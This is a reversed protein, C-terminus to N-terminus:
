TTASLVVLGGVCGLALAFMGSRLLPRDLLYCALHAVRFVVWGLGLLGALAEDTGVSWAILAVPAFVVAAEFANQEAAWARGPLGELRANQARPLRREYGERATLKGYIVPLHAAYPLLVAIVVCWLLLTM